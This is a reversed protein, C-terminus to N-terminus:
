TGNDEEPEIHQFGVCDTLKEFKDALLHVEHVPTDADLKLAEAATDARVYKKLIYEQKAM